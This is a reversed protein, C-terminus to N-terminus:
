KYNIISLFSDVKLSAGGVLGGDINACRMIDSINEPKISGGYLIRLQEATEKGSVDSLIKRIFAHVEEAQQPTATKGTGIAWVPEYAIVTKLMDQASIGSLGETVQSEVVKFTVGEERQKLTEGVCMIPVIGSAVAKKTKINVSRDTESFFQRRESHGIIVFECGCDKLMVASIEGTFAGTDEWYMDQAGLKVNTGRIIKNVQQLVTFAPCIVIERDGAHGVKGCLEKAFAEAEGTTKFLKWNGAIIPKRM